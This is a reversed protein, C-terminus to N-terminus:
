KGNQITASNNFFGLTHLDITNRIFGTSKLM